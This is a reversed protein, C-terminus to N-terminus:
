NFIVKGTESGKKTVFSDRKNNINFNIFNQQDSFENVLMSNRIEISSVNSVNSVEFYLRTAKPSTQAQAYDYNVRNENIKVIFNNKLYREVAANFQAENEIGVGVAKVLDETVFKSNFTMSSSGTNLEVKTTSTHFTNFTIFAFLFFSPVLIFILRKINKLNKM